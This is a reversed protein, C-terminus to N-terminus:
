LLKYLIVVFVTLYLFKFLVCVICFYDLALGCCSFVCCKLQCFHPIFRTKPWNLVNCTPIICSIEYRVRVLGDLCLRGISCAHVAVLLRLSKPWAACSYIVFITMIPDNILGFNGQMSSFNKLNLPSDMASLARQFKSWRWSSKKTRKRDHTSAKGHFAM